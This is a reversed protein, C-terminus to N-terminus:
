LIHKKNLLVKQIDEIDYFLTNGIKSYPITGNVRLTQLTSSSIKLMRLVDNTKLWRRMEDNNEEPEPISLLARIESLLEIKFKILDNKTVVELAM